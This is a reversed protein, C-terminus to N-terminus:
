RQQRGKAIPTTRRRPVTPRVVAADPNWLHRRRQVLQRDAVSHKLGKLYTMDRKVTRDFTPHQHAVVSHKASVFEGRAIATECFEVDVSNHAYGSHLLEAPNDITGQAVYDRHVLPHTAHKGAKVLPNVTDNTGIVLCGTAIHASVAARFWGPHFRIDDAGLLIWDSTTVKVGWNMKRAYDKPGNAWPVVEHWVSCAELERIELRDEPNALFLMAAEVTEGVMSLRFSEVLPRINQPRSLVPVLAVLTPISV